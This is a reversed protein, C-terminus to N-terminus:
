RPRLEIARLNMVAGHVKTPKLSGTVDGAHEITVAGLKIEAFQEWGKSEPATGTFTQGGIMVEFQNGTGGAIFISVDYAGPKAVQFSWELWALANGWSGLFDKHADYVPHPGDGLLRAEGPSLWIDDGRDIEMTAPKQDRWIELKVKRGASARRWLRLFDGLSGTPQGACQLIVDNARLGARAAPSEPPAEDVRVGLEGALGAASVEGLGAVNKIRAGNWEVAGTDRKSKPEAAALKVSDPLAPTRAIKKLEPKQVGFQDMPFNQFGLKLAPSGEKVRYDGAEWHVFMADAEISSEDRGSQQQLKIAPGPTTQGAEHLLNFDIERGWPQKMGVPRYPTFVINRRFVDQSNGYWVHPHFSNNVIVNNEVVRYFGERNKLGGNLCLNNRIEYHSSGDDLDIDWGHDCRWRNNRLIIPSVADLLPLNRYEGLTVAHLDVGQLGWFRDRGWSNFSGHDGTEKVTDFVDCFEIIHGGWCGDGINIGARPVDYISCHRVTINRAMDIEVPATQKEVRGTLYILCDDVECDAPYNATKPGPAQDITAFNNHEKWGIGNRVAAPDGVFAVGNAGSKAIHCGRIRIGRNYNNVFIANGGVQDIFCDQVRCDEAGDFFIAGGRYTTWDSRLVPEKNEMFTRAAHRFTLGRLTVHRVPEQASGRFEILHKLRVAEVTAKALDLGAPPQFYLTDTQGDLFWEGPADLEEFINEVFRYEQHMGSPRNNQWGGEYTVNGGADKGTIVYHMGGWMASHMAHIFGGKPDAWRRAREPSIADRAFGNFIRQSPDFNPYRALIQREGNIFLQDTVLGAPVKARMIGAKFPEWKLELNVGGSIVPEEGPLAAFEVPARETGSDLHNLVLTELLYYTGGRLLVTIPEKTREPANRVAARAAGLTAFPQEKTGPNTDNGNPAVFYERAVVLQTLLLFFLAPRKMFTM